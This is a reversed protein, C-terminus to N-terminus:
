MRLSCLDASPLSLPFLTRRVKQLRKREEILALLEPELESVGGGESSLAESSSPKASLSKIGSPSTSGGGGATANAASSASPSTPLDDYAGSLVKQYRLERDEEERQGGGFFHVLSFEQGPHFVNYARVGESITVAIGFFFFVMTTAALPIPIKAWYNAMLAFYLCTVSLAGITMIKLIQKRLETAVLLVCDGDEGKLSIAPGYVMVLAAQTSTFIGLCLASHIWFDYLFNEGTWWGAGSKPMRLEAIGMFACGAVFAAQTGMSQLVSTYLLILKSQTVIWGRSLTAKLFNKDAAIM